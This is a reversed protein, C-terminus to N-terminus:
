KAVLTRAAEKISARLHERGTRSPTLREVGSPRVMARTMTVM